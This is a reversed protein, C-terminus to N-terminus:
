NRNFFFIALLILFITIRGAIINGNVCPINTFMFILSIVVVVIFINLYLFKLSGFLFTSIILMNCYFIVIFTFTTNIKNIMDQKCEEKPTYFIDWICTGLIVLLVFIILTLTPKSSIEKNTFSGPTNFKNKLYDM